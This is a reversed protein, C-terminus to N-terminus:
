FMLFLTGIILTFALGIMIGQVKGAYNGALNRQIGGVMDIKTNIDRIRAEILATEPSVVKMAEGEDEDGDDDDVSIIM